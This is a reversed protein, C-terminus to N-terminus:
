KCVKSDSSQGLIWSTAEILDAVVTVPAINSPRRSAETKGYGTEVLIGTTGAVQGMEIDRWRDGVIFSRSLDLSLDRVASHIMGPKPKRCDCERRYEDVVATPSHPCYYFGDIRAGGASALRAIEEHAEKVFAETIVGNAIGAQSTVVVVKFGGRNLLRIADVTYPFLKLRQLRDLYGVDEIMTGDRDLFVARNMTTTQKTM